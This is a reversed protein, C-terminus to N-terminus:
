ERSPDRRRRAKTPVLTLRYVGKEVIEDAILVWLDEPRKFPDEM